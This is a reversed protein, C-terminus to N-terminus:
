LCDKAGRCFLDGKGRDRKGPGRYGTKTEEPSFTFLPRELSPQENVAHVQVFKRELSLNRGLLNYTNTEKQHPPPSM